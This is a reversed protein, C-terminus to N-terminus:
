VRAGFSSMHNLVEKNTSRPFTSKRTEQRILNEVTKDVEDVTHPAKPWIHLKFM